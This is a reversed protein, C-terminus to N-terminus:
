RFTGYAKRFARRESIGAGVYWGGASKVSLLALLQKGYPSTSLWYQFMNKIPPALLSVTVKDIGSATVIVNDVGMAIQDNIYCYHAVICNLAYDLTSGNLGGCWNDDPNVFNTALAFYVDLVSEVPSSAYEVFQSQFEPYNFVHTTM